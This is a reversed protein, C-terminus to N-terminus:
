ESLMDCISRGKKLPKQESFAVLDSTINSNKIATKSAAMIHYLNKLRDLNSVPRISFIKM